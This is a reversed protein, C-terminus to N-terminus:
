ASSRSVPDNASAAVISPFWLPEKPVPLWGQARLEDMTPSGSPLPTELDVPAALLAGQRRRAPAARQGHVTIITGASHAVLVVPGDISALTRDLNEVRRL